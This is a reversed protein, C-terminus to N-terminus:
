AALRGACGRDVMMWGGDRLQRAIDAHRLLAGHPADFRQVISASVDWHPVLSVDYSGAGLVDVECTITKAARQFIWRLVPDSTSTARREATSTM